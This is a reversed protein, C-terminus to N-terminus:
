EESMKIDVIVVVAGSERWGIVWGLSGGEWCCFTGLLVVCGCM